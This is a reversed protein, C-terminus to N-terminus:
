VSCLPIKRMSSIIAGFLWHSELCLTCSIINSHSSKGARKSHAGKNRNWRGGFTSLVKDFCECEWHPKSVLVTLRQSQYFFTQIFYGWFVIWIWISITGNAYTSIVSVLVMLFYPFLIYKEVASNIHWICNVNEFSETLIVMTVPCWGSYM